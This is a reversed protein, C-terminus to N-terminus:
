GCYQVGGGSDCLLACPVPRAVQTRRQVKDNVGPLSVPRLSACTLEAPEEVPLHSHILTAGRSPTVPTLVPSANGLLMMQLLDPNLM